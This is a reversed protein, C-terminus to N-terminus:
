SALRKYKSESLKQVFTERWNELHNFYPNFVPTDSVIHKLDTLKTTKISNETLLLVLERDFFNLGFDTGLEKIFHVSSDTSCGSVEGLSTDAALLIIHGGITCGYGHVQNGHSKWNVIFHHLMSEIEEKHELFSIESYYVWVKSQASYKSLKNQIDKIETWM